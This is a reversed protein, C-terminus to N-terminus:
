TTGSAAPLVFVSAGSALMEIQVLLPCMAHANHHLTFVTGCWMSFM